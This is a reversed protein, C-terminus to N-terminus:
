AQHHKESSSRESVARISEHGDFKDVIKRGILAEIVDNLTVVGVTRRSSDIVVFLHRHTRLMAALAHTLTQDQHLYVVHPDMAKEATVSRKIDLALLNELYLIGVIHDIDGAIVPLRSHGTKHLDDLTLPGLFENKKITAIDGVTTMIHSILTDGFSLSHVVLKKDEPTLIGESHDILHELEQRSGLHFATEEGVDSRIYKMFGASKEAIVLLRPELLNYFRTAVKKIPQLRALVGYEFLVIIILITGIVVGFTAVLLFSTAVLLFAVKIKLNSIVDRRFHQKRLLETAQHDHGDARRDLEYLSLSSMTPHMGTVLVLLIFCIITLILLFTFM